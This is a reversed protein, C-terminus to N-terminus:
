RFFKYVETFIAALFALAVLVFTATIGGGVWQSVTPGANEYVESTSTLYSIYVILALIGVGILGNKAKSFNAFLQYISFGIVALAALGVLIYAIIIAINIVQESM